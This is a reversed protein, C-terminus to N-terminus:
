FRQEQSKNKTDEEDEGRNRVVYYVLTLQKKKGLVIINYMTTKASREIILDPKTVIGLAREGLKGYDGELTLIEQNAIDINSVLVALIITSNDKIHGKVMNKVLGMDEKTTIGQTPTRIMSPVDIVTPYDKDLGFIEIKFVGDSFVTCFRGDSNM